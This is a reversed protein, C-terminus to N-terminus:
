FIRNNFYLIIFGLNFYSISLNFHQGLLDILKLHLDIIDKIFIFSKSLPGTLQTRLCQKTRLGLKWTRKTKKQNPKVKTLSIARNRLAFHVWEACMNERGPAKSRARVNCKNIELYNSPIKAWILTETSVRLTSTESQLPNPAWHNILFMVKM